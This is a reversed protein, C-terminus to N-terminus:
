KENNFLDKSGVSFEPIISCQNYTKGTIESDVKEDLASIEKKITDIFKLFDEKKEFNYYVSAFRIYAVIDLNSLIDMVLVGIERSSIEVEGSAELQRQISSVIKDIREDTIPRKKCAVKVSKLLKEREFPVVIGNSKKVMVEKLQVREFTTFRSGCEACFRRRKIYSGDEAMRSDKVQTDVSACFPCRM